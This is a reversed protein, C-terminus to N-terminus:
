FAILPSQKLILAPLYLAKCSACGKPHMGPLLLRSSIRNLLGAHRRRSKDASNHQVALGNVAATYAANLGFAEPRKRISYAPRKFSFKHTKRRAPSDLASFIATHLPEPEPSASSTIAEPASVKNRSLQFIM